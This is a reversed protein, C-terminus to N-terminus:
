HTLEFIQDRLESWIDTLTKDTPFTDWEMIQLIYDRVRKRSLGRNQWNQYIEEESAPLPKGVLTKRYLFKIASDPNRHIFNVTSEDTVRGTGFIVDSDGDDAAQEEGEMEEFEEELEDVSAQTPQPAVETRQPQPAPPPAQPAAMPQPPAQPAVMPQPPAQPAAMPQPAVFGPAVSSRQRGLIEATPIAMVTLLLFGAIAFTFCYIFGQFYFNYQNHDLYYTIQGAATSVVFSNAGMGAYFYFCGFITAGVFGLIGYIYINIYTISGM